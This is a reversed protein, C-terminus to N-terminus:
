AQALVLRAQQSSQSVVEQEIVIWDAEALEPLVPGRVLALAARAAEAAATWQQETARRTAEQTLQSLAELDSWQASLAYGGDQRSVSGAPLVSRLRSALVAVQDRPSAPQADGWLDEALEDVSVAAGRAVALRALLRREKRSGFATREVGEIALGGLVRIRLRPM